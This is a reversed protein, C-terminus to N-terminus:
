VILHIVLKGSTILLDKGILANLMTSKGDSMGGCVVIRVKSGAVGSFRSQFTSNFSTVSEGLIVKLKKWTEENATISIDSSPQYCKLLEGLVLWPKLNKMHTLAWKEGKTSLSNFGLGHTTIGASITAFSPHNLISLDVDLRNTPLTLAATRIVREDIRFPARDFAIDLTAIAMNIATNMQARQAEISGPTPLNAYASRLRDLTVRISQEFSQIQQSIELIQDESTIGQQLTKGGLTIALRPQSGTLTATTLYSNPERLAKILEQVLSKVQSGNIVQDLVQGNTPAVFLAITSAADKSCSQLNRLSTIISTPFGARTCITILEPIVLLFPHDAEFEHNSSQSQM